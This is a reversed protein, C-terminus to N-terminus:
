IGSWARQGLRTGLVLDVVLGYSAIGADVRNARLYGDYVRSANRQVAPVVTSVRAAIARLDELPGEDMSVWVAAQRESDQYRMLRPTLSLWASYESAADGALCTLWGVFSAESEDAYGALHAWEHAVVSPREFPLVDNNVLVELSFPSIMASIGAVRFYPTMLTPKPQGGVATRGSGLMVQTAGFATNMRGPLEELGAWGAAHATPHLRNLRDVAFATLQSLAQPNVLGREFGLKTSLPVRRYNLGWVLLFVLYLAAALAATNMAMRGATRWRRGRRGARWFAVAWWGPVGVVAAFLLADFVAFRVVDSAPTLLNQVVLYLQRSYLSEIWSAPTPIFAAALAVAVVVVHRM